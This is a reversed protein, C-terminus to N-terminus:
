RFSSSYARARPTYSKTGGLRYEPTVDDSRQYADPLVRELTLLSCRIVGWLRGQTRCGVRCYRRSIWRATTRAELTALRGSRQM